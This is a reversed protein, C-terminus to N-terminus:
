SPPLAASGDRWGVEFLRVPEEFGKLDFAGKLSFLYEKGAVLNRVTDSVLIEGGDAHSMIRAAQIVATGYLDDDQAIPEGANIGIRIRMPTETQEFHASIARQMEVAADIAGSASDFSVMFGDGMTKIEDGSHAALAERTLREHKQLLERAKADGYQATLLTSEEVDTFLITRFAGHPERADSAAADGTEGSVENIFDGVLSVVEDSLSDALTVREFPRELLQANPIRSAIERAAGELDWGSKPSYIVLTPATVSSARESVDFTRMMERFMRPRDDADVSESVLTVLSEFDSRAPDVLNVFSEVQMDISLPAV